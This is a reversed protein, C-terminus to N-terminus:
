NVRQRKERAQEIIAKYVYASPRPMRRMTKYDIEILGFRPTFGKDWEFNDILSWHFYGRVDVGKAQALEVARLHSRIYDARRTDAADALGNETIYIPLGYKKTQLLVETLGEPRIPWSLDSAPGPWASTTVKPPLITAHKMVTFYFNLGIFDHTGRTLYFFRHNFWWNQLSAVIRDALHNQQEPMFAVFHKALGVQASRLVKHIADYAQKHGDALNRIVRNLRFVNHEQPPWNKYWYSQTAYVMPENITVWYDILDGLEVAVKRAYRAFFYPARSNIWGGRAALWVPNTFHHLTVFSKLKKERLSLLVDRYHDFARKNWEGSKLELRSWELSLRHANHGLERALSFDEEYRNYQDCARGSKKVDAVKKEWQWWDNHINDGEVQHASTAAGWLFPETAM